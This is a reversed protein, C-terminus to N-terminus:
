IKQTLISNKTGPLSSQFCFQHYKKIGSVRKFFQSLHSLWDYIPVNASGFEDGVLKVANLTASEEVVRAIDSLCEV